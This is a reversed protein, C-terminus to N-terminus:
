MFPCPWTNSGQGKILVQGNILCRLTTLGLLHDRRGHDLQAAVALSTSNGQLSKPVEGARRLGQQEKLGLDMRVVGSM